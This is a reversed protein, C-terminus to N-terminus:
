YYSSKRKRQQRGMILGFVLGVFLVLAGTFFWENRHSSSLSENEKTLTKVAEEAERLAKLTAIHKKRLQLFDASDARLANYEQQLKDLAERNEDFKQTLGKEKGSVEAWDKELDSLKKKLLSNEKELSTSQTKWPVRRTLFRNLIWGELKQDGTELVRVQSWGSQSELVEVPQDTQLMTVIKQTTGPGDRLTIRSTNTVYAKEAWSVQCMLLLGLSIIGVLVKKM